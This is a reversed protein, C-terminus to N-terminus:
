RNIQVTTNSNSTDLGAFRYLVGGMAAWILGMLLMLGVMIPAEVADDLTHSVFPLLCFLLTTISLSIALKSLIKPITRDKKLAFFLGTSGIIHTVMGTFLFLIGFPIGSGTLYIEAFHFLAQLLLSIFLILASVKVQKKYFSRLVVVGGLCLLPFAFKIYDTWDSATYGMNIRRGIVLWDYIPKTGWLLGGFVCMLSLLKKMSGEGVEKTSIYIYEV